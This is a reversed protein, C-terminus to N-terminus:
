VARDFLSFILVRLIFYQIDRYRLKENSYEQMLRLTQHLCLKQNPRILIKPLNEKEFIITLFSISKSKLDKGQAIPQCNPILPDTESHGTIADKASDLSKAKKITIQRKLTKSFQDFSM